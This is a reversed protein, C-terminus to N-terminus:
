VATVGTFPFANMVRTDPLRMFKLAQQASLVEYQPPVLGYVPNSVVKLRPEQSLGMKLMAVVLYYDENDPCRVAYYNGVKPIIDLAEPGQRYSKSDGNVECLWALTQLNNM